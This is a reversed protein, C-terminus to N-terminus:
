NKDVEWASVESGSWAREVTGGGSGSLAVRGGQLSEVKWPGDALGEWAGEIAVGSPRRLQGSSAQLVAGVDSGHLHQAPWLAYGKPDDRVVLYEGPSLGAGRVAEKTNLLFQGESGGQDVRM